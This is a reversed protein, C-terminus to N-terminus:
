AERLTRKLSERLLEPNRSHRASQNFRAVIIFSPTRAISAIMALGLGSSGLVQWLGVGRARFGCGLDM